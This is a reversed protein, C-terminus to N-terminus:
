FRVDYVEAMNFVITVDIEKTNVSGNNITLGKVFILIHYM